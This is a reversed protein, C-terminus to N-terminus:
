NNVLKNLRRERGGNPNRKYTQAGGKGSIFVETRLKSANKRERGDLSPESFFKRMNLIASANLPRSIPKLSM